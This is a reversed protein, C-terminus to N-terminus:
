REGRPTFMDCMSDSKCVGTMYAMIGETTAFAACIYGGMSNDEVGHENYNYNWVPYYYKCLDCANRDNNCPHVSSVDRNEERIDSISECISNLCETQKRMEELMQERIYGESLAM